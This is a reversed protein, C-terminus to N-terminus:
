FHTTSAASMVAATTSAASSVDDPEAADPKSCCKGKPLLPLLYKSWLSVLIGASLAACFEMIPVDM